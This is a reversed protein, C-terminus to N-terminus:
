YVFFVLLGVKSYSGVINGPNVYYNVIDLMCFVSLIMMARYISKDPINARRKKLDFYSVWVSLMVLIILVHVVSVLNIYHTVGTSQLAHAIVFNAASLWFLGRIVKRKGMTELTLLFAAALFPILM